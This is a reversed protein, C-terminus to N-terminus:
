GGMAPMIGAAAARLPELALDADSARATDLRELYPCTLAAVGGPRAAGQHLLAGSFIPSTARIDVTIIM